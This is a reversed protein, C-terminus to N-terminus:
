GSADSTQAPPELSLAGVGTTDLVRAVAPTSPNDIRFGRGHSAAERYAAVLAGLGTSDIFTVASLDMVITRVSMAVARVVAREVAPGALIDIEGALRVAASSGRVEVLFERNV